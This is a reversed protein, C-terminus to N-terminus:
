QGPLRAPIQLSKTIPSEDTAPDVPNLEFVITDEGVDVVYFSDRVGPGAIWHCDCAKPTFLLLDKGPCGAYASKAETVLHVAPHGDIQLATAEVVDFAPNQRLYAVLADAGPAYPYRKAQSCPDSFGQPNKWVMLDLGNTAGIEFFDPLTRSDYQADPLVISFSPEFADVVGAGYTTSGLLSRSWTRALAITRDACDDSVATLQLQTGDSSLAWRYTGVAGAACSRSPRDLAVTVQDPTSAVVSSAFSGAAGLNGVALDSGSATITLDIPGSGTGLVDSGPDSAVWRARLEDAVFGNAVPTAAAASASPAASPSPEPVPGPNNNQNGTLLVAGGLLAIGIAAALAVKLFLTVKPRRDLSWARRQRQRGIRDAVVTAVRDPLMTPGDDFWSELLRDIDTHETM